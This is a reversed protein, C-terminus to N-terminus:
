SERRLNGRMIDAVARAAEDGEAELGRIAGEQDDRSRNQNFKMKGEIRTIPIEFGVIAQLLSAMTPEAAGVDWAPDRHAEHDRVLREVQSRLVDPDEVLVPVGYVHAAAYNWTPVTVKEAYWTPSIYAHPGAFVALVEEDPRFARWHPNARAMHAVLTGQEGRQPDLTFPLHTAVPGDAGASFLTGFDYRRILDHLVVPDDERFSRPTYV